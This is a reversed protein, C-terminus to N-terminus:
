KKSLKTQLADLRSNLETFNDLENARQNLEDAKELASMDLLQQHLSKIGLLTIGDMDIMSISEKNDGLHFARYFDQATPGMHRIADDQSLYNWTTIKLKKIKQLVAVGDVQEFNEKKTKDSVSAWSGSGASLFVGMTNGPDSYFNTGGSARVLFQNAATANTVATSSADAYVFSGAKANSSGYYGFVTSYGGSVTSHTGFGTGLATSTVYNGIAICANSTTAMNGRGIAVSRPTTAITSDGLAYSEFGGTAQCLRGMAVADAASAICGSGSAFSAVGAICNYGVAASYNGINADDWQNASVSGARFAAKQPYWLLRTGAGTASLAGSSFTGSSLAGDNGNISLSYLNPANGIQINGTSNLRLVSTNNTKFVLDKADLTTLSYPATGLTNGNRTWGTPVSYLAYTATDSHVTNKTTVANQTKNAVAATDAVTAHLVFPSTTYNTTDAKVAHFSNYAFLVTDSNKDIAPVWFSNNWKLLKGTSLGTLKVDSFDVLSRATSQDTNAAHFAYPVSLLQSSVVTVYNNGGNVDMSIKLYFASIIWNIESFTAHIANGTSNGKGIVFKILGSQDSTLTTTEEWELVDTASGSYIGTKIRILQNPLADGANNRVITQYPIGDALHQASTNRIGIFILLLILSKFTFSNIKM